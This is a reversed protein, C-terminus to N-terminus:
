NRKNRFRKELGNRGRKGSVGTTSMPPSTGFTSYGGIDKNHHIDKLFVEHSANIKIRM